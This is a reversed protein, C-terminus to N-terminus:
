CPTFTWLSLMAKEGQWERGVRIFGSRTLNKKMTDSDTTAFAPMSLGKAIKKVLDGSLQRGRMEKAVVVYGLEPAAEFGIIPVGATAFKKTRYGQDPMKLAAVGVIRDTAQERLLVLTQTRNLRTSVKKIDGVIAGGDMVLEAVSRQDKALLDTFGGSWYYLMANIMWKDRPYLRHGRM